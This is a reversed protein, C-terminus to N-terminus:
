PFHSTDQSDGTLCSPGAESRASHDSGPLAQHQPPKNKGLPQCLGATSELAAKPLPFALFTNPPLM